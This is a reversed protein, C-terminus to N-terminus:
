VCGGRIGGATCKKLNLMNYNSDDVIGCRSSLDGATELADIEFAANTPAWSLVGQVIVYSFFRFSNVAVRVFQEELM